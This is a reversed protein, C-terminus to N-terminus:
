NILFTCTKKTSDLKDNSCFKNLSDTNIAFVKEKRLFKTSMIVSDGAKLIQPFYTSDYQNSCYLKIALKIGCSDCDYLEGVFFNSKTHNIFKVKLESSHMVCTSVFICLYSAVILKIGKACAKKRKKLKTRM